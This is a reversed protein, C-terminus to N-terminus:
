AGVIYTSITSEWTVNNGAAGMVVPVVNSGSLQLGVNWGVQDEGSTISITGVIGITGNVNKYCGLMSYWASDGDAGATGGTRRAVIKADVLLTRGAPISIQSVATVAADTTLTKVNFRIGYLATWIQYVVNILGSFFTAVQKDRTFADPIQLPPPNLTIAM